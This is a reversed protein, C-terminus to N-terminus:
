LATHSTLEKLAPYKCKPKISLALLGPLHWWRMGTKRRLKKAAAGEVREEQWHIIVREQTHGSLGRSWIAVHSIDQNETHGANQDNGRQLRRQTKLSSTKREKWLLTKHRLASRMDGAPKM